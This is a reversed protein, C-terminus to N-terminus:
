IVASSPHIEQGMAVAKILAYVMQGQALSMNRLTDESVLARLSLGADLHVFAQGRGAPNFGTIRAPIKNLISIGQVPHLSLSIDRARFILRVRGQPPLAGAVRLRHPGAAVWSMGQGEPPLILCDWIGGLADEQAFHHPDRLLVADIAGFDKQIGGELLLGHSSLQAAEVLRHTVYLIPLGADDRLRSIYPLIESQLSPDLSALPEDFALIKPGSLLARGIAVRQKEGGSLRQPYRNLLPEIDLWRLIRALDAAQKQGRRRAGYLLNDIVRMHPFLRADQFVMGVHRDQPPRHVGKRADFFCEGQILIHGNDPRDLGAIMRLLSTKGAGSPGIIALLGQHFSFAATLHMAGIKKEIAIDIM